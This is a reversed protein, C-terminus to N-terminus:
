GPNGLHSRGTVSLSLVIPLLASRLPSHGDRNKTTISVLWDSIATGAAIRGEWPNEIALGGVESGQPKGHPFDPTETPASIVM